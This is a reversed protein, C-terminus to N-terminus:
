LLKWKLGFRVSSSDYSVMIVREETGRYLYHPSNLLNNCTAFLSIADTVGWEVFLNAEWRSKMFQDFDQNESHLLEINGSQDDVAATNIEVLYGSTYNWGLLAYINYKHSDWYLQFNALVDAQNPLSQRFRKGPVQFDSYVYTANLEVGLEEIAIHIFGLDKRLSFEAGVLYSPTVSNQFSKTRIGLTPDVNFSVTRFILDEVRKFFLGSTFIQGHPMYKEFSVDLNWSYSPKLGPNGLTYELRDYDIVPAGPKLEEYTPRRYSRSLVFRLSSRRSLNWKAHFMPLIAGFKSWQSKQVIPYAVVNDQILKHVGQYSDEEQDVVQFVGGPLEYIRALYLNENGYLVSDASVFISSQEFRFGFDLELNKVPTGNFLVFAGIYHDKYTYSSGQFLTYNSHSVTMPLQYLSNEFSPVFDLIEERELLGYIHDQFPADIESLFGGSYDNNLSFQQMNIPSQMISANQFWEHLSVERSGTRMLASGGFSFEWSDNIEYQIELQTNLPDIETTNNLESFAKRFNFDEVGLSTYDPDISNWEDGPINAPQDKGIFKYRLFNGVSATGDPVLPLGNEDSAFTQGAEDLYVMDRFVVSSAFFDIFHYGNRADKREFPANGYRFRNQFSAFQLDCRFRGKKQYKIEFLGGFLTSNPEAYGSRLIIESSFYSYRNDRSYTRDGNHSLLGTFGFSWQPNAKYDFKLMGAHTSRINTRDVFSVRRIGHNEEGFYVVELEDTNLNRYNTNGGLLVGWRGNSSRKNWLLGVNLLPQMSQFNLGNSLKVKLFNSDSVEKLRVNLVGGIADGALATQASRSVDAYDVFATPISSLGFSRSGSESAIPMRVGDILVLNWDNPTGRVAVENGDGHDHGVHLGTMKKADEAVNLTADKDDGLYNVEGVGEMSRQQKVGKRVGEEETYIVFIAKESVRFRLEITGLYVKKGPNIAFGRVEPVVDPDEFRLWLSDKKYEELNLQFYGLSDTYAGLATGLVVIKVKDVNNCVVRGHVSTQAACTDTLLGIGGLFLTVVILFPKM